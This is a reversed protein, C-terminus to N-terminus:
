SMRASIKHPDAFLMLSPKVLVTASRKLRVGFPVGGAAALVVVVVPLLEHLPKRVDTFVGPLITLPQYAM